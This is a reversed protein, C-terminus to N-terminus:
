KAGNQNHDEYEKMLQSLSELIRNREEAASLPYVKLPPSDSRHLYISYRSNFYTPLWHKQQERNLMGFKTKGDIRPDDDITKIAADRRTKLEAYQQDSMREKFVLVIHYDSKLGFERLLDDTEMAPLSIPNLLTVQQERRIVISRPDSKVTWGSPISPRLATVIEAPFTPTSPEGADAGPAAILLLLLAIKNRRMKMVVVAVNM